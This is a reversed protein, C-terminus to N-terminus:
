VNAGKRANCSNCLTQLNSLEFKGGHLFPTVHDLELLRCGYKGNSKIITEGLAYRGDYGDPVATTWGCHRCAFGDRAYVELRVRMLTAPAVKPRSM